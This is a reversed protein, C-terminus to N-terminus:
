GGGAGPAVAFTLEGGGPLPSFGFRERTGDLGMFTSTFFDACFNGM